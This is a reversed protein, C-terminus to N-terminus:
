PAATSKCIGAFHTANMGSRLTLGTTASGTNTVTITGTGTLGTGAGGIFLQNSSGNNLINISVNGNIIVNAANLTDYGTNTKRLTSGNNLTLGNGTWSAHEANRHRGTGARAGNCRRRRRMDRPSPSRWPAATSPRPGPTASGTAPSRRPAPAPPPRPSPSRAPRTACIATSRIAAPAPSSWRAPAPTTRAPSARNPTRSSATAIPTRKRSARWRRRRAKWCSAPTASSANVENVFSLVGNGGLQNDATMWLNPSLSNVMLIDGPVATVNANKSLALSGQSITTPGTYTNASSGALTQIGGGVKALGGGSTSGNGIIGSFTTSTGDQGTTLYGGNLTVQSGDVGALSGITQNVGNLDLAAGSATFNVATKSPLVGYWKAQLYQAMQLREAATLARNFVLVEGVDGYSCNAPAAAWGCAM